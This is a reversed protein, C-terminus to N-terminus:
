KLHPNPVSRYEGEKEEIFYLKREEYIDAGNEKKKGTKKSIVVYSESTVSFDDVISDIEKIGVDYHSSPYKSSIQNFTFTTKEPNIKFGTNILIELVTKFKSKDFLLSVSGCNGNGMIWGTKKSLEAEESYNLGIVGVLLDKPVYFSTIQIVEKTEHKLYNRIYHQKEEEILQKATIVNEDTIIYVMGKDTKVINKNPYTKLINFTNTKFKKESIYIYEM